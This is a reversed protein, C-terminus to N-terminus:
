AVRGDPFKGGRGVRGSETVSCRESNMRMSREQALVCEFGERVRAAREARRVLDWPPVQLARALFCVTQWSPNSRGREISSLYTPHIGAILAVGEITLKQESRLKRIARGLDGKAPWSTRKSRTRGASRATKEPGRSQRTPPEASASGGVEVRSM